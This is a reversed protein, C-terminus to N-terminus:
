EGIQQYTTQVARVVIKGDIFDINQIQDPQHGQNCVSLIVAAIMTRAFPEYVHEFANHLGRWFKEANPSSLDDLKMGNENLHKIILMAGQCAQIMTFEEDTMTLM